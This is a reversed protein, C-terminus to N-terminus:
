CPVLCECASLMEVSVAEPALCYSFIKRSATAAGHANLIYSERFTQKTEKKLLKLFSVM